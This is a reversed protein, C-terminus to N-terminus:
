PLECPNNTKDYFPKLHTNSAIKDVSPLLTDKKTKNQKTKNFWTNTQNSHTKIIRIPFQLSFLLSQKVM